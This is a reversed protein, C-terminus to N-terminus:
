SPPPATHTAIFAGALTIAARAPALLTFLEFVHWLGSFPQLTLEAGATRARTSFALTDRALLEGADYQILTPPLGSLDEALSPSLRPDTRPHSGAYLAAWRELGAVTLMPDEGGAAAHAAPPRLDLWPSFMVLAGPRPLGRQRAELVTTLALGGGASDGAICVSGPATGDACLAGYVAAADEWAAPFPHEPALRYDVAIVRAHAARALRSTLALHSRASGVVYGGGHLYLITRQAPGDDPALILVPVGAMYARTHRVRAGPLTRCTAELLVRQVPVPVGPGFLPRVATRVIAGVVNVPTDRSM